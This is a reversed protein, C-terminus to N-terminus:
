THIQVKKNLIVKTFCKNTKSKKDNYRKLCGESHAFNLINWASSLLHFITSRPLHSKGKSLLEIKLSTPCFSFSNDLDCSSFMFYYLFDFLIPQSGSRVKYFRLYCTLALESSIRYSNINRSRFSFHMPEIHLSLTLNM